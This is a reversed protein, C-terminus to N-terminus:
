LPDGVLLRSGPPTGPSSPGRLGLYALEKELSNMERSNLTERRVLSNIRVNKSCRGM